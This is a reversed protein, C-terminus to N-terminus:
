FKRVINSRAGCSDSFGESFGSFGRMELLKRLRGLAKGEIQRIRERTVSKIRAVEELTLKEENNLPYRAKIVMREDPKLFPFIERELVERFEDREMDAGIKGAGDYVAHDLAKDVEGKGDELVSDLSLIRRYSGELSSIYKISLGLSDCIERRSPVRRHEIWFERKFKKLKTRTERFHTPLNITQCNGLGRRIAQKIWWTAYTSFKFGKEPDFMDAADMLGRNGLSILEEFGTGLHKYCKAISVVLRLNSSVLRKRNESFLCFNESMRKLSKRFDPLISLLEIELGQRKKGSIRSLVIDRNDMNILIGRLAFRDSLDRSFRKYSCHYLERRFDTIGGMGSRLILSLYRRARKVRRLNSEKVRRAFCERAYGVSNYLQILGETYRPNVHLIYDRDRVMERSSDFDFGALFDLFYRTALLEKLYARRYKVISSTIEKEQEWTLLPYLHMDKFYMSVSDRIHREHAAKKIDDLNEEESVFDEHLYEEMKTM